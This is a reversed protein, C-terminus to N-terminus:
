GVLYIFAIAYAMAVTYIIASVAISTLINCKAFSWFGVKEYKGNIKLKM